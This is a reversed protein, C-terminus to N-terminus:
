EGCKALMKETILWEKSENFDAGEVMCETGDATAIKVDYTGAKIGSLTFKGGPQVVDSSKEGLQDPGWESSSALNLYLHHIASKSQNSVALELASASSLLGFSLALCLAVRKM